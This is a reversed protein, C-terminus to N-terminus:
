KVRVLAGDDFGVTIAIASTLFSEPYHNDLVLTGNDAPCKFIEENKTYHKLADVLLPMNAIQARWQPQSNWIQPAYKDSADVAFPFIEDNDAMYLVTATGLQSLNSICASKKAERKANAFVPFLIGALVAIIAIVVLIEVMTFARKM